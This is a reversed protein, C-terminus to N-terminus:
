KNNNDIMTWHWAHAPINLQGANFDVQEFDDYFDGDTVINLNAPTFLFDLATTDDANSVDGVLNGWAWVSYYPDGGSLDATTTFTYTESAGPALPAGLTVTEMATWNGSALSDIVFYGDFSTMVGLGINTFSMTVVTAAPGGCAFTGFSRNSALYDTESQFADTITIADVRLDQSNIQLVKFNKLGLIKVQNDTLLDNSTHRIAVYVAQGAYVALDINETYWAQDGVPTFAQVMTFDAPVPISGALTTAVLVEFSMGPALANQDFRVSPNSLLTIQPSIMWDDTFAPVSPIDFEGLSYAGAGPGTFNVMTWETPLFLSNTAFYEDPSLGDVNLNVWGAPIAAADFNEEFVVQQGFSTQLTFAVAM